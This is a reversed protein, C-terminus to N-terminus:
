ARGGKRCSMAPAGVSLRLRAIEVLLVAVRSQMEDLHRATHVSTPLGAMLALREGCDAMQGALETLDHRLAEIEHQHSALSPYTKQPYASHNPTITGAASVAQHKTM